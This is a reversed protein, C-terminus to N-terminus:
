AASGIRSSSRVQSLALAFKPCDPYVPARDSLAYVTRQPFWNKNVSSLRHDLAAMDIQVFDDFVEVLQLIGTGLDAALMRQHAHHYDGHQRDQRTGASRRRDSLPGCHLRLEQQLQQL